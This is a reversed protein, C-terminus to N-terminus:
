EAHRVGLHECEVTDLHRRMEEIAQALALEARRLDRQSEMVQQALQIGDRGNAPEAIYPLTARDVESMLVQDLQEDAEQTELDTDHHLDCRGAYPGFRPATRDCTEVRCQVTEVYKAM